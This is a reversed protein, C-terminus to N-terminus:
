LRTWENQWNTRLLFGSLILAEVTISIAICIFFGKIGLPSLLVTPIGCTLIIFYMVFIILLGLIQRGMGRLVACGLANISAFLVYFALILLVEAALQIVNDDTSFVKPLQWRLAGILVSFCLGICCNLGLSLRTVAKAGDPSGQGLYQGVRIGTAFGIGYPLMFVVAQM